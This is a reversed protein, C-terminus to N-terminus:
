WAPVGIVPCTTQIRGTFQSTYVGHACGHKIVLAQKAWMMFRVSTCGPALDKYSLSFQTPVDIYDIGNNNMRLTYVKAQFKGGGINTRTFNTDTVIPMNGIATNISGAFNFGPIIGNPSTTNIIQSGQFGKKFYASLMEQGAQTTTMLVQPKLCGVSLFRDFVDADFTGSASNDNTNHSNTMAGSGSGFWGEIGQFQLASTSTNGKVLMKDYGNLLLVQMQWMERAKIDSIMQSMITAGDGGFPLGQQFAGSGFFQNYAWGMGAVAASHKIDSETLSQQAGLNKLTVTTQTPSGITTVEPCSGDQFMMQSYAQDATSGTLFHMASMEAWTDQKLSTPRQNLTRALTIEECATFIAQTPVPLPYWTNFSPQTSVNGGIPETARQTFAGGNVLDLVIEDPM